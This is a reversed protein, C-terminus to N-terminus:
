RDAGPLRPSAAGGGRGGPRLRPAESRRHRFGESGRRWRQRLCYRHAPRCRSAPGASLRERSLRPFFAAFHAFGTGKVAASPVLAAIMRADDASIRDVRIEDFEGADRWSTVPLTLVDWYPFGLYNILVERRAAIPWAAPDMGALLADLESTSGDLDIDAGLRDILATIEAARGAVFRAAEDKGPPVGEAAMEAFLREAMARTEATFFEPKERQRLGDLSQYFYRKLRDVM